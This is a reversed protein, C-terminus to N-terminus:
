RILGLTERVDGSTLTLLSRGFEVDQLVAVELRTYDRSFREAADLNIRRRDEGERMHELRNNMDPIANPLFNNMQKSLGKLVNMEFEPLRSIRVENPNEELTEIQTIIGSNRLLYDHQEVVLAQKCRDIASQCMASQKLTFEASELVREIAFLCNLLFVSSSPQPLEAAIRICVEICQRLLQDWVDTFEIAKESIELFSDDLINVVAALDEILDELFSPVNLNMIDAEPPRASVSAILNRPSQMFRSMASKEMNQLSKTVSADKELVRDILDRYFRILIAIRFSMVRDNQGVVVQDIRQQLPGLVLAFSRDVLENQMSRYDFATTSEGDTQVQRERGAPGLILEVVERESAVAQHLWALLDGVFRMADDNHEELKGRVRAQDLDALVARRRSESVNDLTKDYLDRRASLVTLGHRLSVNAETAGSTTSKLEKLIWRHLKAYGTELHKNMTDMIELGATQEDAVLLVSCRDYITKVKELAQFFGENVLEPSSLQRLEADEVAFHARFADLVIKKSEVKKKQEQLFVAQELLQSSASKVAHAQFRMKNCALQMSDLGMKITRMEEILSKYDDLVSKNTELEQMAIKPALERRSTATNAFGGTELIQLAPSIEADLFSNSLIHSYRQSLISTTSTLSSPLPASSGFPRETDM